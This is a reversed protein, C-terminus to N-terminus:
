PRSPQRSRAPPLREPPRQLAPKGRSRGPPRFGRHHRGGKSHGRRRQLACRNEGAGFDPHRQHGRRGSHSRRDPTARPNDPLEADTMLAVARSLAHVPNARGFDNWSHGGYGEITLEFRRSGLAEAAIHGVSAGDVVLYRDVQGAYRSHEAFYRMGQLDGEGEEAVNAILLVNRGADPLLPADLVKALALLASLGAGNDTVGPAKWRATRESASM